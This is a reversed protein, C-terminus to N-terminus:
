KLKKCVIFGFSGEIGENAGHKKWQAGRVDVWPKGSELPDTTLDCQARFSSGGESCVFIIKSWDPTAGKKLERQCIAQASIAAFFSVLM